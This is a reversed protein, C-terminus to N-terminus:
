GACALLVLLRTSSSFSSASQMARHRGPSHPPRQHDGPAMHGVPQLQVLRFPIRTHLQELPTPATERSFSASILPQQFTPGSTLLPPTCVTNEMGM